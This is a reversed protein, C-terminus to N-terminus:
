PVLLLRRRLGGREVMTHAEAANRMPVTQYDPAKIEGNSLGQVLAAISERLGAGDLMETSFGTLTVPRVLNWADFSVDGGGVAGVLSLVGGDRLAKICGPFLKGGVVDLVGDAMGAELLGTGDRSVVEVQEAGLGRVYDEQEPRTTIATVVAGGARAIAIAASGVGGAAGTVVIRKGPLPGLRHLGWYATVGVLGLASMKLPDVSSPVMAIADAAVTVFQAYSGDREARVGGLGQMMTIVTQGVNWESVAKGVEDLTGIVEVGPVYPFPNKKRVPWNGSRIELDTHNVAAAITRIRVDRPALPVLKTCTWELVNPAGYHNVQITNPMQTEPM